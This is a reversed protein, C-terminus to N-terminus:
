GLLRVDWGCQRLMEFQKESLQTGPLLSLGPPVKAPGSGTAVRQIYFCSVKQREDYSKYLFVTPAM